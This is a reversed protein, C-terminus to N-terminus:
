RSTAGRIASRDTKATKAPFKRRAVEREGRFDQVKARELASIVAFGGATRKSNGATKTPVSVALIAVATRGEPLTARLFIEARRARGYTLYFWDCGDHAPKDRAGVDEKMIGRLTTGV